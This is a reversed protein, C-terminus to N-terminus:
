ILRRTKLKDRKNIKTRKNSLISFIQEEKMCDGKMVEMYLIKRLHPGINREFM